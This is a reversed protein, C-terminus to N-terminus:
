YNINERNVSDPKDVNKLYPLTNGEEIKWVNTFDWNPFESEYFMSDISKSTGYESTELGTTEPVWYSNSVTINTRTEEKVLLGIFGIKEGISTAKGLAYTQEISITTYASGRVHGYVYGILSGVNDNGNVTGHAFVNQVYTYSHNGWNSRYTYDELYGIFGGVNNGTTEVNGTAYSIRIYLYTYSVTDKDDTGYVYSYGIFGGVNDGTALVSGTAYSNQIYAYTRGRTAGNHVYIYGIFGGVDTAGNINGTSKNGEVTVTKNYVYIYGIAGGVRSNGIVNSNSINDSVDSTTYGILGGTCSGTGTVTGNTINNSVTNTTNGVLGGVYDTGNVITQNTINGVLAGTSYGTLGGVNITGNVTSNIIENESLTGTSYGALIGVNQNGSIKVNELKINKLTGTVYRFLGVYDENESEYTLNSITYGNGDLISVFPNTTSGIPQWEVGNLDINAGLRYYVKTKDIDLLVEDGITQINLLEQANMIIFPAEENGSESILLKEQTEEGNSEKIKFISENGLSYNYDISIKSKGYGYIITGDPKEIYEIGNESNITLLIKLNNNDQNDYIAYSLLPQNENQIENGFIKIIKDTNAIGLLIITIILLLIFIKILKTHTYLKLINKFKKM